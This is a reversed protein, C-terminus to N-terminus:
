GRAAASRSPRPRNTLTVVGQGSGCDVADHKPSGIRIRDDGSGAFVSDLGSTSTWELGAFFFRDDGPGGIVVSWGDNVAEECRGGSDLTDNGAGLRTRRKHGASGRSYRCVQDAGPGTSAEIQAASCTSITRDLAPRSSSEGGRRATCKGAVRGTALRVACERPNDASAYQQTPPVALDNPEPM